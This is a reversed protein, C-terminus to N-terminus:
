RRLTKNYVLVFIWGGIYSLVYTEIFGIIITWDNFSFPLPYQELIVTGTYDSFWSMIAYLLLGIVSIIGLANGFAYPSLKNRSTLSVGRVSKSARKLRARSYRRKVM